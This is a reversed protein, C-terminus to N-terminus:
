KVTGKIKSAYEQALEGAKEGHIEVSYMRVPVGNSNHVTFESGQTTEEAPTENESTEAADAAESKKKSM